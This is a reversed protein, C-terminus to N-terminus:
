AHWPLEKFKMIISNVFYKEYNQASFQKELFSGMKAPEKLLCYYKNLWFPMNEM